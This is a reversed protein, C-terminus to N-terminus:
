RMGGSLDERFGYGTFIEKGKPGTLFDLFAKAESARRSSKVVAGVYIIPDHSEAPLRAVIRVKESLLADSGYVIGADVEGREVLALAARVDQTEVLRGQADKWLYLHKLAQEAYRGAPVSTPDGIAIKRFDTVTSFGKDMVRSSKPAVVVLSNQALTRATGTEILGKGILEDVWRPDAAAYLDAPAGHEIQVALAGSAGPHVAVPGGGTKAYERAAREMVDVLSAAVYATVPKPSSSCALGSTLLIVPVLPLVITRLSAVVKCAIRRPRAPRCTM